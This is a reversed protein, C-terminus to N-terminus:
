KPCVKDLKTDATLLVDRATDAGLNIKLVSNPPASWDNPQFDIESDQFQYLELHAGKATIYLYSWLRVVTDSLQLLEDRTNSLVLLRVEMYNKNTKVTREGVSEKQVDDAISTNPNILLLWFIWILLYLCWALICLGYFFFLLIAFM